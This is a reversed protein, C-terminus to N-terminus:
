VAEERAMRDMTANVVAETMDLIAANYGKRFSVDHEQDLLTTYGKVKLLKLATTYDDHAIAKRRLEVLESTSITTLRDPPM